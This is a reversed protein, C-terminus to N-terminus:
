PAATSYTFRTETAGGSQPAATGAVSVGRPTLDGTSTLYGDAVLQKMHNFVTTRGMGLRTAREDLSAKSDASVDVLIALQAPSITVRKTWANLRITQEWSAGRKAVVNFHIGKKGGDVPTLVITGDALGFLASTGRLDGATLKRDMEEGGLKRAHHVVLFTSGHDKAWQQIPRLLRNMPGSEREDFDHFDRLPDLCFLRPEYHNLWTLLKKVAGPDDLRYEWPDDAIMIDYHQGDDDLQMSFGEEVMQRLEGAKHEANLMMVAGTHACKQLEAPLIDHKYGAVTLALAMELTTKQSKPPGALFVIGAPLIRDITYQPPIFTAERLSTWVGHDDLDNTM